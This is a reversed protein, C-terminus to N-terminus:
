NKTLIVGIVQVQNQICLNLEKAIEECKSKEEVEMLVANGVKAMQMLSEADYLISKGVTLEIQQENLCERLEEVCRQPIAELESGTLYVKNIESNKCTLLINSYVMQMQQQTSLYKKRGYNLKDIATDVAAATKKRRYPAMRVTGFVTTGFLYKIEDAGHVTKSVTYGLACVAYAIITGAFFGTLIMKVSPKVYINTDIASADGSLPAETQEKTDSYISIDGNQRAEMLMQFLQKQTDSFGGYYGNYMNTNSYIESNYSAQLNILENDIVVDEARDRLALQTEGDVSAQMEKMYDQLIEDIADAIDACEEASGACVKVTFNAIDDCASIKYLEQLYKNEMSLNLKEKLHTVLADGSLYEKYKLVVAAPQASVVTYSLETVNENYADLNMYVSEKMYTTREDAFLKYNVANWVSQVADETLQAEVSEITPVPTNAADIQAQINNKAASVDAQYQRVGLFVAGIVAVILIFRWHTMAQVLMRKVDIERQEVYYNNQKKM